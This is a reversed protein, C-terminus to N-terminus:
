SPPPRRCSVTGQIQWRPIFSTRLMMRHYSFGHRNGEIMNHGPIKPFGDPPLPQLGVAETAPRTGRDGIDVGTAVMSQQHGGGLRRHATHDQQGFQILGQHAPINSAIQAAVDIGTGNMRLSITVQGGKRLVKEGGESIRYVVDNQLFAHGGDEALIGRHNEVADKLRGLRKLQRQSGEDGSTIIVAEHLGVIGDPMLGDVISM